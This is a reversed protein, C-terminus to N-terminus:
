NQLQFSRVKHLHPIQKITNSKYNIYRKGTEVRYVEFGIEGRGKIPRPTPPSTLSYRLQKIFAIYPILFLTTKLVSESMQGNQVLGNEM